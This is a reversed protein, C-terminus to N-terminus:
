ALQTLSSCDAKGRPRERILQVPQVQSIQRGGTGAGCERLWALIWSRKPAKDFTLLLRYITYPESSTEVSIRWTERCISVKFKALCALLSINTLL